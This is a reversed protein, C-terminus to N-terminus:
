RSVEIVKYQNQVYPDAKYSFSNDKLIENLLNETGKLKIIIEGTAIQRVGNDYILVPEIRNFSINYKDKLSKEHDEYNGNFDTTKVLVKTRSIQELGKGLGQEIKSRDNEAFELYVQDKSINFEIPQEHNMYGLKEQANITLGFLVFFYILLNRKM